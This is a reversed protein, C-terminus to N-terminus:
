FHKIIFRQDVRGKAIKIKEERLIKIKRIAGYIYGGVRGDSCVVRHCPIKSSHNKNLANGVARFAKFCGIVQAINKYTAVRGCPIKKVAEFVKKSFISM